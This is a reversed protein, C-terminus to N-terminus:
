QRGCRTTTAPALPAIEGHCIFAGWYLPADPHMRQMELQADRLADARGSGEMLRRYFDVMIEKTERDPVKWLSMVVTRAGAHLFARRLGLVGEGPHIDGLGSDCASLVVLETGDLDLGFVDQATLLGDGAEPPLGGGTLWTNAGALALASRLLPDRSDSPLRGFVDDPGDSIDPRRRQALFFGHTALHVVVPSKASKVTSELAHGGLLPQVDLMHAIETVEPGTHKLPTFRVGRERLGEAITETPRAAADRTVAKLDYDPAGMVLAASATAPTSGGPLLDRGSTVYSIRHRNLLFENGLPLAEFPVTALDGDPAIVIRGRAEVSLPDFVKRRLEEGEKRDVEAPKRAGLDRSGKAFRNRFSEISTDVAESDGFDLMRVDRPRDKEFVFALYRPPLWSRRKAAPGRIDEDFNYPTFRMYEVLVGNDPLAAALAGLDVAPLDEWVDAGGMQRVIATEEFDRRLERVLEDARGTKAALLEASMRQQFSRLDAMAARLEADGAAAARRVRTHAYLALGKYRLGHQFAAEVREKSESGFKVVLSLLVDTAMRQRELIQIRQRDTSISLSRWLTLQTAEIARQTLDLAEDPRGTRVCVYALGHASLVFPSELGADAAALQLATRFSREAGELDGSVFAVHGLNYHLMANEPHTARAHQTVIELASEFGKRAAGLDGLRRDIVAVNSLSVAVDPHTSGRLQKSLKLEKRAYKVAEDDRGMSVYLKSLTFLIHAYEDGKKGFEKEAIKRSESLILLAKGYLGLLRYAEGLNNLLIIASKAAEGKHSRLLSLGHEYTVIASELQGTARYSYGLTNLLAALSIRTKRDLKKVKTIEFTVAELLKSVRDYAHSAVLVKVVRNAANIASEYDRAILYIAFARAYRREAAATQGQKELLEGIRLESFALYPHNEDRLLVRDLELAEERLNRAQDLDERGELLDALEILAAPLMLPHEAAVRRALAVLEELRRQAGAADAMGRLARALAMLARGRTDVDGEAVRDLVSQALQKARPHAGAEVAEEAAVLQENAGSAQHAKTSEHSQGVVTAQDPHILAYDGARSGGYADRVNELGQKVIGDIRNKRIGRKALAEQMAPMSAWARRSITDLDLRATLRGDASRTHMEPNLCQFVVWLSGPTLQLLWDPWRDYMSQIWARVEPVEYLSRPDDDYGAVLMELFAMRGHRRTLDFLEERFSEMRSIGGATVESSSFEAIFGPLVKM